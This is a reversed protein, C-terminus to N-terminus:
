AALRLRDEQGDRRFGAGHLLFLLRDDGHTLGRRLTKAAWGCRLGEVRLGLGYVGADARGHGILCAGVLSALDAFEDQLLLVESLLPRSGM